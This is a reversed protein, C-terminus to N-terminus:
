GLCSICLALQVLSLGTIACLQWTAAFQPDCTATEMPSFRWARQLMERAVNDVHLWRQQDCIVTKNTFAVTALVGVVCSPPILV